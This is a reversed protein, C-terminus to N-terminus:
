PERMVPNTAILLYATRYHAYADKYGKATFFEAAAAMEGKAQAIVSAPIGAAEGKAITDDVITKVLALKGPDQFQAINYRPGHLFNMEIQLRINDAQFGRILAELDDIRQLTQDLKVLTTDAKTNITNATSQLTNVSTQTARSSVKVDLRADLKTNVDGVAAATNGGIEKIVKLIANAENLSNTVDTKVYTTLNDVSVQTARANLAATLGGNVYTSLMDLSTQSARTNIQNKIDNRVYTDLSALNNSSALTSVQVNLNNRITTAADSLTTDCDNKIGYLTELTLVAVSAAANAAIPAIRALISTWDTPFGEMVANVAIEVGKAISIDTVTINAARAPGCDDPIALAGKVAGGNSALSSQIMQRLQPKLLSDLMLPVDRWIPSRSFATRMIILDDTSMEPLRRQAEAIQAMPNLESKSDLKLSLFLEQYMRSVEQMENLYAAVERRFAEPDGNPDMVARLHERDAPRLQMREQAYLTPAALLALLITVFLTFIIKKSM